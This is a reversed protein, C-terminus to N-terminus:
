SSEPTVTRGNAEEADDDEAAGEADGGEENKLAQECRLLWESSGSDVVCGTCHTCVACEELTITRDRPPCYVRAARLEDSQDIARGLEIKLWGRRRPPGDSPSMFGRMPQM